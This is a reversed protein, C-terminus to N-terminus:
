AESPYLESVKVALFKELANFRQMAVYPQEGESCMYLGDGRVLVAVTEPQFANILEDKSGVLKIM